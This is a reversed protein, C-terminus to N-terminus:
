TRKGAAAQSAATGTQTSTAASADPDPTDGRHLVLLATRLLARAFLRNTATTGTARILARLAEVDDALGARITQEVDSTAEVYARIEEAEAATWTRDGTVELTSPRDTSWRVGTVGLGPRFNRPGVSDALARRPNDVLM